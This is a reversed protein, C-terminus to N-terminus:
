RKPFQQPFRGKQEWNERSTFTVDTIFRFTHIIAAQNVNVRATDHATHHWVITMAHNSHSGQLSVCVATANSGPQPGRGVTSLV